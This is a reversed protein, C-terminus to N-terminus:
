NLWQPLTKVSYATADSPTIVIQMFPGLYDNAVLNAVPTLGPGVALVTRGTSTIAASTLVDYWSDAVLNYYWSQIKVTLTKTAVLTIVDIIVKLCEAGPYTAMPGITTVGSAAVTSTSYNPDQINYTIKPYSNIVAVQGLQATSALTGNNKIQGIENTGAPLAATVAVNQTAPFNSVSVSGNVTQSAPFNSVSVSGVAAVGAGLVVTGISNTGAPLASTVAVNQTAPFNTVTVNAGGGSAFSLPKLIKATYDYGYVIIKSDSM